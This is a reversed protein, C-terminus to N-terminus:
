TRELAAMRTTDQVQSTATVPAAASTAPGFMNLTSVAVQETLLAAKFNM